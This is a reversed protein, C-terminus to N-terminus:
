HNVPSLVGVLLFRNNVDNVLQMDGVDCGQMQWQCQGWAAHTDSMMVDDGQKQGTVTMMGKNCRDSADYGQWMLWQCWATNKVSMMGMSHKESVDDGQQTQWQCWRSAADVRAADTVLMIGHQMQGQCWGGAVHEGVNEEQMQWHCGLSRRDSVNRLQM